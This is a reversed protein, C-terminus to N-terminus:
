SANATAAAEAEASLAAQIREIVRAWRQSDYSASGSASASGSVSISDGDTDAMAVTDASAGANLRALEDKLRTELEDRTEGSAYLFSYWPYTVSVDGSSMVNVTVNMGSPIFGLLRADKRYTVSMGSDNMVIGEYRDDNRLSAEAFARLGAEDTVDAALVSPINEDGSERPLTKRLINFGSDSSVTASGSVAAGSSAAADEEDSSASAEVDAAADVSTNSSSGSGSANTDVSGTVGAGADLLQAHSTSGLLTTGLLLALALRGYQTTM